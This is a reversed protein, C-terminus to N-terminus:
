TNDLHNVIRKLSKSINYVFYLLGGAVVIHFVGVAIGMGVHGHMM